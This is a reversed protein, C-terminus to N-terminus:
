IKDYLYQALLMMLIISIFIILSMVGFFGVGIKSMTIIILMIAFLFPIIWMTFIIEFGSITLVNNNILKNFLLLGVFVVPFFIKSIMSILTEYNDFVQGDGHYFLNSLFNIAIYFLFGLAYILVSNIVYIINSAM